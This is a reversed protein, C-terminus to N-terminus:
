WCSMSCSVLFIKWDFYLKEDLEVFVAGSLICIPSAFLPRERRYVIRLAQAHIIVQLRQFNYGTRWDWCHITGNDAGSVLVGEPNVALCNVIANHGVLNQVFNGDPCKWQKINDPSASAFM